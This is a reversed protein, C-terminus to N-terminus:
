LSSSVQPNAFTAGLNNVYTVANVATCASESSTGKMFWTGPEQGAGAGQVTVSGGSASGPSAGWTTGSGPSTEVDVEAWCVSTPEQGIWEAEVFVDSGTSGYTSDQDDYVGFSIQRQGSSAATGLRFAMDPEDSALVSSTLSGFSANAAFAARADTMVNTLDSQSSRDYASNKTGLFNPIAIALLIGMILLVVMLEVLTFAAEGASTEM